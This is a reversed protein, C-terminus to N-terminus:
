PRQDIFVFPMDVGHLSVVPIRDAPVQMAYYVPKDQFPSAGKEVALDPFQARALVGYDAEDAQGWVLLVGQMDVPLRQPVLRNVHSMTEAIRNQVRLVARSIEMIEYGYFRYETPLNTVVLAWGQPQAVMRRTMTSAIPSFSDWTRSHQVWRVFYDRASFVPVLALCAMLGVVLAKPKGKPFAQGLVKLGQEALLAVMLCLGPIILATRHGQPAEVLVSFAGAMLLAWFWLVALRARADKFVQSHAWLFAPVLLVGFAADVHPMFHLNHRGNYDGMWNFMLLHRRISEFLAGWGQTQVDNMISVQQSRLTVDGWHFAAHWLLPLAALPLLALTAALWRQGARWLLFLGLSLPLLPLLVKAVALADVPVQSVRKAMFAFLGASFLAWALGSATKFFAGRGGQKFAAELACWAAWAMLAAILAQVAMYSQLAMGLCLGALAGLLASQRRWAAVLFAVSMLGFFSALNIMFGLRQFNFGWRLTAYALLGVLAARPKLLPRLILYFPILSLMGFVAGMLRLTEVKAGFVKLFPAAVWFYFSPHEVMGGMWLPVTDKGLVEDLAANIYHAEDFWIGEPISGLKYFRLGLAVVGIVALYILEEKVPLADPRETGDDQRLAWFLALSGAALLALGLGPSQDNPLRLWLIGQGLGAVVAGLGAVTLPVFYRPSAIPPQPLMFAMALLPALVAFAGWSPGHGWFTTFAAASFGCALVLTLGLVPLAKLSTKPPM